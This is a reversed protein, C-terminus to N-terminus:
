RAWNTTRWLIFFLTSAILAGLNWKVSNKYLGVRQNRLATKAQEDLQSEQTNLQQQLQTKRTNLQQQIQGRLDETSANTSVDLSLQAAIAKLGETDSQNLREEAQKV